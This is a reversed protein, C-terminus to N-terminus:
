GFAREAGVQNLSGWPSIHQLQMLPEHLCFAQQSDLQSHSCVAQIRKEDLRSDGRHRGGEAATGSSPLFCLVDKDEAGPM